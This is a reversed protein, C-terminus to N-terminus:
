EAAEAAVAQGETLPEIREFSIDGDWLVVEVMATGNSMSHSNKVQSRRPSLLNLCGGRDVSRGPEGMPEYVASSEYGQAVGTRLRETLLAACLVAGRGNFVKVLDGTKIGRAVADQPNLRLVWYYHGDILMRHDAIDNLFSDKGDGQSHFSYRSHPTMLQLPYGELGPIDASEWSPTYKVIPPREPDDPAYRKLSSSEFEFKGSQTQLGELFQETYDGPLPMAEPLDKKRGEAFWRYATPARHEPKESPVVFYGREVFKKWSIHQPLDSADFMRKVWDIERMGETYYSGLGLRCALASFIDYDSRSEGIPEICKAQYTIIRHNIQSNFHAGYGGANAWESIDERELNTCAPLIVDAFQVDGENWISQNVVFELNPSRYMAVYRNADNLTGLIATGYRYLMHVNAHGQKPYVIKSFQGEMTRADWLYGEAHGDIIAEPLRLRPILQTSPNMTPLQPMRQYLAAAMATNNLDGSIGGDAYGPFYFSFDLPVGLQLNGVNVGPKGLGQMGMLCVMTRTWQTGNTNRCAGGFTNGMGGVALYTRKSGWKRALARVDKAPVGTESEQWEPSKAVGDGSGLIYDRWADFGKTRAAVYDKDYLEETIWVHAIALALAPSTTPRPSIWKGGLFQATDNFYPDIHVLEIDLDRLWRRRITGEQGGYVGGTAEPNSSWFVVMEANELCDEITGFLEGGGVRLSGGWHHLAGWYWGEWSDPNHHVETTGIANMFRLKASLYYGINGWNHHSGNSSAIAGTGYDRKMRKIESSVIDLAEDWSIREYGSIGRNQINREGNPDFDVRKMPYQLRNPAYVMSKWNMAHPSLAGSRPPTFVKGRAEISWSQPDDSDFDVPTTRIIKGDRVYVFLPGGNTMTCFRKTGDPMSRGIRWGASMAAMVTQAFWVANDDPGELRVLFNKLADIQELQDIPPMLLKAGIAATKFILAVTPNDHLGAGSRIRGDEFVIYRGAGGDATQIQVVMNREALRAQYEPFRWRAYRFVWPLAWLILKFMM